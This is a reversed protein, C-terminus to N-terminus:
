ASLGVTPCLISVYVPHVYNVSTILLTVSSYCSSWDRRPIICLSPRRPLAHRLLSTSPLFRDSDIAYRQHVATVGQSRRGRAFSLRSECLSSENAVSGVPFCSSTFSYERAVDSAPIHTYLTCSLENGSSMQPDLFPDVIAVLTTRTRRRTTRTTIQISKPVM